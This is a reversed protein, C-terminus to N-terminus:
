GKGEHRGSLQVRPTEWNDSRVRAQTRQKRYCRSRQWQRAVLSRKLGARRGKEQKIRLRGARRSKPYISSANDSIGNERREIKTEKHIGTHDPLGHFLQGRLLEWVSAKWGSSEGSDTSRQAWFLDKAVETPRGCCCDGFGPRCCIM